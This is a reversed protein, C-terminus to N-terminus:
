YKSALDVFKGSRARVIDDLSQSHNLKKQTVGDAGMSYLDYDLSLPKDVQDTRCNPWGAPENAFNLYRYANGYPDLFPPSQTVSNGNAGLMQVPGLENLSNPLRMHEFEFAKIGQELIRINKITLKVRSRDVYKTYAPIAIAALIGVIMLSIVIEVVTFGRKDPSGKRLSVFGNRDWRQRVV